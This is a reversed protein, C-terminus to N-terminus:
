QYPFRIFTYTDDFDLFTVNESREIQHSIFSGNLVSKEFHHDRYPLCCSQVSLSNRFCNQAKLEFDQSSMPNKNLFPKMPFSEDVEVDM